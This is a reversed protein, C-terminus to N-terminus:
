LSSKLFNLESPLEEWFRVMLEHVLFRVQERNKEFVSDVSFLEQMILIGNFIRFFLMGEEKFFDFVEKEKEIPLHLNKIFLMLSQEELQFFLTEYDHDYLIESLFMLYLKKDPVPDFIKAMVFETFLEPMNKGNSFSRIMSETREYRFHNGRQMLDFLIAKTSKYYQYVGGKSLSTAKVVDEMTTNRFGKKLFLERAALQIEEQREEKTKRKFKAM